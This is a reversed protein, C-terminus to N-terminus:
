FEAHLRAAFINAPGRDANYGPNAVFQYDPSLTLYQTLKIAYYTEFIMEPAYNLHGDGVIIGLGGEELFQRQEQSIANVVGAIAWTDDPRGWRKGSVSAGIAASEDIQTFTWEETKGDNWSLRTFAGVGDALQQEANVAFGYKGNGYHRAAALAANVDAAGLADSFEAERNRNYFFLVHTKGPNQDISYREELEVVQGVNDVGHFALDSQNPQNPEMFVGYRLAWSEQNLEAAFGNTYGRADAPADWAGSSMLSWNLFQTRADHSYGNADFIDTAAFTGATLTIRAIDQKGALQNQGAAIQETAGGLGIVQRVFLRATGTKITYGGAKNAEGNPFGAAGFTDSLGVGQYLEPDYYVEAGEWLRRGLFLTGTTTNKWQEQPSLSNAGSYPAHFSPYGQYIATTQGHLSWEEQSPNTNGVMAQFQSSLSDDDAHASFLPAMIGLVCALLPILKSCM